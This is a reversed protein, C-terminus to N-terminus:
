LRYQIFFGFLNVDFDEPIAALFINRGVLPQLRNFHWDRTKSHEFRHYMRLRLRHNIQWTINTTAVHESFSLDPYSDGPESSGLLAIDLADTSAFDYDIEDVSHIFSYDSSVTVRDCAVSFGLGVNHSRGAGSESWFASAPFVDGGSSPDSGFNLDNANAMADDHDQYGYFAYVTGRTSIQYNWEINASKSQDSRLGFRADYDNDIWRASVFVDMDDRILFNARGDFIHQTRGSLDYKRLEALTHPQSGEPLSPVYGPLDSTYFPEYPDFEYDSGGRKAYEYSVRLTAWSMTRNSLSLRWRDIDTKGRERHDRDTDTRQYALSLLTKSSLRYDLDLSLDTERRAFPISRYHWRSGAVGPEFIGM